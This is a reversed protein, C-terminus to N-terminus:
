FALVVRVPYATTKKDYSYWGGNVMDFPSGQCDNYSNYTRLTSLWYLSGTIQTGGAASLAANVASKNAHLQKMEAYSPIYWSSAASPVSVQHKALPGSTADYMEMYTSNASRYAKMGKTLGYGNPKSTDPVEYGRESLWGYVSSYGFQGLASSYEPLAVVLGHTCTPHDIMMNKDATAASSTSFVVGIVTKNRNLQTSWTGDSYYYDGINIPDVPKEVIVNCKASIADHGPQLARSDSVTATIVASGEKHTTIEGSKEDVSVIDPNSSTWVLDTYTPQKGDVDSTFVPTIFTQKGPELTVSEVQFSLTKVYYPEVNVIVTKRLSAGPAFYHLNGENFVDIYVWAVTPNLTVGYQNIVGTSANIWGLAQDSSYYLRFYDPNVNEPYITSALSLTQDQKMSITNQGEALANTIIAKPQTTVVKLSHSVTTVGNITCSVTVMGYDNDGQLYTHAVGTVKGNQDVTAKSVDSSKWVKSEVIASAPYDLVLDATYGVEVYPPGSLRFAENVKVKCEASLPLGWEDVGHTTATVVAEGVGVATILGTSKDVAVVNENSTSWSCTLLDANSPSVKASLKYTEGKDIEISNDSVTIDTVYVDASYDKPLIEVFKSAIDTKGYKISLACKAGVEKYYFAEKLEPIVTVTILGRTEDVVEVKDVTFDIYDSASVSKVAIPKAYYGIVSVADTDANLAKAASAPRIFYSLQMSGKATRQAKGFYPLDADEVKKDVDMEYYAYANDASYESVFTVSQIMGLLEDVDAELEGLRTKVSEVQAECSEVRAILDNLTVTAGKMQALAQASSKKLSTADTEGELFKAIAEHCDEELFDVIQDIVAVLEDADGLRNQVSEVLAKIEDAEVGNRLGAEVDSLMGALTENQSVLDGIVEDIGALVVGRLECAEYYDEFSSGIWLLVSASLEESLAPYLKCAKLAGTVEAINKQQCLTAVTADYTSVESKLYSIHAELEEKAKVVAEHIAALEDQGDQIDKQLATQIEGMKDMSATVAVLQESVSAVEGNSPQVPSDAEQM